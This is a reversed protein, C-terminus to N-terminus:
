ACTLTCGQYDLSLLARVCRPIKTLFDDYHKLGIKQQESLVADGKTRLDDLTKLGMSCIM